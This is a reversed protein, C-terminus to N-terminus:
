PPNVASADLRESGAALRNVALALAIWLGIRISVAPIMSLRELEPTAEGGSLWVIHAELIAWVAVFAPVLLRRDPGFRRWALWNLTVTLALLALLADIEHTDFLIAGWASPLVARYRGYIAGPDLMSSVRTGGVRAGAYFRLPQILSYRPHTLVFRVYTRQGDKALWRIFAPNRPVPRGIVAPRPDYRPPPMGHNAFWASYSHNTLIRGKVIYNVAGRSLTQNHRIEVFGVISVLLLGAAVAVALRDRRVTAAIVGAGTPLLGFLVDPQRTLTWLQTAALAAAATAPRPDQVYALWGAIMLATLSISASESLIASNWNVVQATLGLALLVLTLGLRVLRHAITRSAVTALV